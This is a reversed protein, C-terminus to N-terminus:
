AAIPWNFVPHHDQILKLQWRHVPTDMFTSGFYARIRITEPRPTWFHNTMMTLTQGSVFQGVVARLDENRSIYLHRDQELVELLGEGNPVWRPDIEDLAGLEKLASEMQLTSLREFLPADGKALHRTKRIYLAGLRLEASTLEKAVTRALQEYEHVLKSDLLIDDISAGYRYRLRVLAFELVHAYEPVISPQPDVVTTPQLVIGHSRYRAPAKRITILRRDLQASPAHLGRDKAERHFRAALHPDWLIREPSRGERVAEFSEAVLRDMAYDFTVTKPEAPRNALVTGVVGMTGFNGFRPKKAAVMTAGLVRNIAYHNLPM